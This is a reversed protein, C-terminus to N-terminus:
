YRQQAQTCTSLWRSLDSTYGGYEMVAILKTYRTMIPEDHWNQLGTQHQSRTMTVQGLKQALIIVHSIWKVYREYIFYNPRNLQTLNILGCMITFFDSYSSPAGHSFMITNYNNVVGELIIVSLNRPPRQSM